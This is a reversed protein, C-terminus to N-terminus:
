QKTNKPKKASKKQKKYLVEINKKVQFILVGFIPHILAFILIFITLLCNEDVMEIDKKLLKEQCRGKEISYYNSLLM